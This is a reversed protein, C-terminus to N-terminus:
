APALVLTSARLRETEEKVIQLSKPAITVKIRISVLENQGDAMVAEPAWAAPLGIVGGCAFLSCDRIDYGRRATNETARHVRIM